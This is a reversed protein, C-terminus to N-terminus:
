SKYGVNKLIQATNKSLGLKLFNVPLFNYAYRISNNFQICHLFSMVAFAAFMSVLFPQLHM